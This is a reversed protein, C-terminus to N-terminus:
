GQWIECTSLDSIKQNSRMTFIPKEGYYSAWGSFTSPPGILYDCAALTYMDCVPSSDRYLIANKPLSSAELKEPSSIFFVVKRPSLLIEIEDMRALFIELPFFQDTDRFDEWRIHVGVKVEGMGGIEDMRKSVQSTILENPRFVERIKDKIQGLRKHSRLRWGEFVVMPSEVLVRIRRDAIEDADFVIDEDDWFKVTPIIGLKGLLRARAVMRMEGGNPLGYTCYKDNEFYSFSGRYESFALNYLPVKFQESLAILHSFLFLRNGLRGFKNFTFIM